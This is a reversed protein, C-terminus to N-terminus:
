VDFRPQHQEFTRKNSIHVAPSAQSNPSPSGNSKNIERQRPDRHQLEVELSGLVATKSSCVATAGFGLGGLYFHPPIREAHGHCAEAAKVLGSTCATSSICRHEAGEAYIM